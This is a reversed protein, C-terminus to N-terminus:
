LKISDSESGVARVRTLQKEGLIRDPIHNHAVDGAAAVSVDGGEGSM